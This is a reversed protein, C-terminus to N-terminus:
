WCLKSNIYKGLFESSFYYIMLNNLNKHQHIRADSNDDPYANSPQSFEYKFGYHTCLM